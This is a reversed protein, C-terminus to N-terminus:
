NYLSSAFVIAFLGKETNELADWQVWLQNPHRQQRSQLFFVFLWIIILSLSNYLLLLGISVYHWRTLSILM